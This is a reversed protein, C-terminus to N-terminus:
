KRKVNNGTWTRAKLADLLEAANRLACAEDQSRSRDAARRVASILEGWEAANAPYGMHSEVDVGAYYQLECDDGSMKRLECNRRMTRRTAEPTSMPVGGVSIRIKRRAGCKKCVVQPDGM